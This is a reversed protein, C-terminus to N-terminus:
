TVQENDAIRYFDLHRSVSVMAVYPLVELCLLFEIDCAESLKVLAFM